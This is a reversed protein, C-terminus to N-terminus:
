LIVKMKTQKHIELSNIIIKLSMLGIKLNREFKIKIILNVVLFNAIFIYCNVFFLISKM